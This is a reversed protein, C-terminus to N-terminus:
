GGICPSVEPHATWSEFAEGATPLEVATTAGSLLDTRETPGLETGTSLHIEVRVACLTERTTNEVTGMFHNSAPDFALVLRAGNRTADWTEDPGIYTSSEEGEERHEHEAGEGGEGHEDGGESRAHEGAGEAGAHEGVGETRAPEGAGERTAASDGAAEASAHEGAGETSARPAASCAAAGLSVAMAAVIAPWRCTSKRM